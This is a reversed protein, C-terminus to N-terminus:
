NGFHTIMLGRLQTLREILDDVDCVHMRDWDAEENEALITTLPKNFYRDLEMCGDPRISARWWGDPDTLVLKDDEMTTIDWHARM